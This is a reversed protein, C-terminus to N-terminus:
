REIGFRITSLWNNHCIRLTMVKLDAIELEEPEQSPKSKLADDYQM